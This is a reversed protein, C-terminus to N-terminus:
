TSGVAVTWRDRGAHKAAYLARDARSVLHEPTEETDWTAIGASFTQGDPSVARLRDLVREVAAADCGPLLAIFEEGGYRALVDVQRLQASWSAAAAKLLRDGAQHGHTDNYRKFHDLDIIAVTAPLGTRAAQDLGAQLATDWSRRNALGTLSDRQALIELQAAQESLVVTQSHVTTVLVQMRIVVLVFITVCGLAIADADAVVSHDRWAEIGLLAPGILVAIGLLVTRLLPNGRGSRAPAPVTVEATSPHLLAAGYLGAVLASSVSILHVPLSGAPDGFRVFVAMGGDGALSVLQAGVLLRISRNHLANGALLRIVLVLNFLDVLPYGLSVISAAVSGSGASVAPKIMFVWCLLVFGCSIVGADLLSERGRGRLRQRVLAVWGAIQVAYASLFLADALRPFPQEPALTLDLLGAIILAQGAVVLWLSGPHPPRHRWVGWVMAVVAAGVVVDNYVWFPTTLPMLFFVGVAVTFASLFWWSAAGAGLPRGRGAPSDTMIM